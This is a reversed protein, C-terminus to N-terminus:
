RFPISNEVNSFSDSRYCTGKVVAFSDNVQSFSPLLHRFGDFVAISFDETGHGVPAATAPEIGGFVMQVRDLM